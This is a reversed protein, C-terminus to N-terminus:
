GSWAGRGILSVFRCSGLNETVDREELRTIRILEQLDRSGVPIVMRGNVALQRLLEDPVSPAAATVMIADYPAEDEWGLTEETIHLEINDYGLKRLVEGANRSLSPLRETTVVKRCLEALIASQYGSGTGVELVCESGDLVLGQTMLAVIYPQSITQDLAIPLPRDQYAQLRYESPVFSERPVRAMAALVRKDRIERALHEILKMRATEFDM